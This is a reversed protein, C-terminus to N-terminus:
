RRMTWTFFRLTTSGVKIMDGDSLKKSNIQVGNVFTGNTSALDRISINNESIAEIVAHKRSVNSDILELDTDTRGIVWRVSLIEDIKGKETGEVVEIFLRKNLSLRLNHINEKGDQSITKTKSKKNAISSDSSM